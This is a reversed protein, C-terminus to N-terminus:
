YTSSGSLYDSGIKLYETKRYFYILRKNEGFWYTSVSWLLNVRGNNPFKPRETETVFTAGVEVEGGFPKVCIPCDRELGLLVRSREKDGGWEGM